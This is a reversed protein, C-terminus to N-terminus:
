HAALTVPLAFPRFNLGLGSLPGFDPSPDQNLLSRLSDRRLRPRLGLSEALGLLGGILGAPIPLFRPRKGQAAALVSMIERLTYAHRHAAVLPVGELGLPQAIVRVLLRALDDAHATHLSCDGRGVLPVFGPLSVLKSLSGVMGGAREGYVLGPRILIAGHEAAIAEMELKARGYLSRCGPFASITSILVFRKVGAGAAAAFLRRTGEINVTKIQEWGWAQFDYACHILVDMEAFIRASPSEQLRFPRVDGGASGGERRLEIVRAGAARFGQALVSGLYGGSGTLGVNDM